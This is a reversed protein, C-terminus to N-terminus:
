NPQMWELIAVQTEAAAANRDVVGQCHGADYGNAAYVPNRPAYRGALGDKYGVGWRHWKTDLDMPGHYCGCNPCRSNTDTPM